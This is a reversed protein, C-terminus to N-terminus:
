SLAVTWINRNSHISSFLLVAWSCTREAVYLADEEGGQKVTPTLQELSHELEPYDKSGAPPMQALLDTSIACHALGKLEPSLDISVACRVTSKLRFYLDTSACSYSLMDACLMTCIPELYLDTSACSYSLMDACLM